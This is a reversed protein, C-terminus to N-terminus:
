AEEEGGRGGKKSSFLYGVASGVLFNMLDSNGTYFAYILGIVISAGAVVNAISTKSLFERVSM